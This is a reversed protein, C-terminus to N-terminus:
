TSGPGRIVGDAPSTRAPHPSAHGSYSGAWAAAGTALAPVRREGSEASEPWVLCAFVGCWRRVVASASARNYNEMRGHRCRQAYSCRRTAPPSPQQVSVQLQPYQPSLARTQTHRHPQPPRLPAQFPRQRKVAYFLFNNIEESCNWQAPCQWGPCPRLGPYRNISCLGRRSQPCPLRWNSVLSRPQHASRGGGASGHDQGQRHCGRPQPSTVHHSTVTLSHGTASGGQPKLPNSKASVKDLSESGKPIIYM